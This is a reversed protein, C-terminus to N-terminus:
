VCASLIYNTRSRAAPEDHAVIMSDDVVPCAHRMTSRCGCMLLIALRSVTYRRRCVRAIIAALRYHPEHVWGRRRSHRRLTRDQNRYCRSLPNDATMTVPEVAGGHPTNGRMYGDKVRKHWGSRDGSRRHCAKGTCHSGDAGEVTLEGRGRPEALVHEPKCRPGTLREPGQRLCHRCGKRSAQGVATHMLIDNRMQGDTGPRGTVNVLQPCCFRVHLTPQGDLRADATRPQHGTVCRRAAPLRHCFQRQGGGSAAWRLRLPM